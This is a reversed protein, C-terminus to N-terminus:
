IPGQPPAESPPTEHTGCRIGHEDYWARLGGDRDRRAILEDMFASRPQGHRLSAEYWRLGSEAGAVQVEASNPDSGPHEILYAAMGFTSGMTAPPSSEEGRSQALAIMFGCLSVTVDPSETLWLLMAAPTSMGTDNGPLPAFPDREWWRIFRAIAALQEPPQHADIPSLLARLSAPGADSSPGANANAATTEAAPTTATGGGCASALLTFMFLGIRVHQM